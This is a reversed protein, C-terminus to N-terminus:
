SILCFRVFNPCLANSHVFLDTALKEEVFHLGSIMKFRIQDSWTKRRLLCRGRQSTGFSTEKGERDGWCWVFINKFFTRKYPMIPCMWSGTKGGEADYFFLLPFLFFYLWLITGLRLEGSCKSSSPKENDCSKPITQKKRLNKIIFTSVANTYLPIKKWYDVPTSNATNRTKKIKDNQKANENKEESSM